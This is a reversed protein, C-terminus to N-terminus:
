PTPTISWSGNTAVAVVGPLDAEFTDSFAETDGFLQTDDSTTFVRVGFRDDADAPTYDVQVHSVDDSFFLVAPGTGSQPGSVSPLDNWSLMTMSWPGDAQVILMQEDPDSRMVGTLFSATLPATAEGFPSMRGPATVAATGVCRSCDLNMVVAFDGRVRFAVDAPGTGSVTAPAGEGVDGADLTVGVLEAVPPTTATPTPTPTASPSPSATRRPAAGDTAATDPVSGGTLMSCGTVLLLAAVAAGTTGARRIHRGDHEGM